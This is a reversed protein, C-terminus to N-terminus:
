LEPSYMVSSIYYDGQNNDNFDNVTNKIDEDIKTFDIGKDFYMEVFIAPLGNYEYIVKDDTDQLTVKAIDEVKIISGTTKDVYIILDEIDTIEDYKAELIISSDTNDIEVSGWHYRYVVPTYLPTYM